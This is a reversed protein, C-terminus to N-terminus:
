TRSKASSIKKRVTEARKKWTSLYDAQYIPIGKEDLLGLKQALAKTTSKLSRVDEDAALEALNAEQHHEIAKTIIKLEAQYNKQKRFIIMLRSYARVNLQDQKLAARYMQVAKKLDGSKEADAAAHLKAHLGIKNSTTM